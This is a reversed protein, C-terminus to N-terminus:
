KRLTPIAKTDIEEFSAEAQKLQAAVIPMNKAFNLSQMYKSPNNKIDSCIVNPEKIGGVAWLKNKATPVLNIKNREWVTERTIQNQTLIKNAVIEESKHRDEFHSTYPTIDVSLSDCYAARARLNEQSYGIYIIAAMYHRKNSDKEANFFQRKLENEYKTSADHPSLNPYTKRAAQSNGWLSMEIHLDLFLKSMRETPKPTKEKKCSTLAISSIVLCATTISVIKRM